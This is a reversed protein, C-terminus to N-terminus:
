SGQSIDSNQESNQKWEIRPYNLLSHSKKEM